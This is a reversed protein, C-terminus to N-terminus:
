KRRQRAMELAAAEDDAVTLVLQMKLVDFLQQVIPPLSHLVMMGGAARCQNQCLLLWGVGTSDLATVGGLDMLLAGHYDAQTLRGALPENAPACDPQSIEGWIAVRTIGDTGLIVNLNM